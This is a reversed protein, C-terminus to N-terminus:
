RKTVNNLYLRLAWSAFFPSGRVGPPTNDHDTWIYTYWFTEWQKGNRGKALLMRSLSYYM